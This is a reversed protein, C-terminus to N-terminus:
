IAGQEVLSSYRKPNRTVVIHDLVRIGMLEAIAMIKVTMDIDAPSPTPDGSPHNHSLVIAAANHLLAPLVVARPECAVSTLTGMAVISTGLVRNGCDLMIVMLTENANRGIQAHAISVAHEIGHAEPEAVTLMPGPTLQVQYTRIQTTM